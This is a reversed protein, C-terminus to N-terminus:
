MMEGWCCSLRGGATLGAREELARYVFLVHVPRAVPPTRAYRNVAVHLRQAGGTDRDKRNAAHAAAPLEVILPAGLDRPQIVDLQTRQQERLRPDDSIRPEGGSRFAREVLEHRCEWRCQAFARRHHSLAQVDVGGAPISRRLVKSGKRNHLIRQGRSRM